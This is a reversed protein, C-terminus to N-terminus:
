DQDGLDMGSLKGEGDRRTDVGDAGAQRKEWDVEDLTGVLDDGVNSNGPFDVSAVPLVAVVFVEAFECYLVARVLGYVYILLLNCCYRHM